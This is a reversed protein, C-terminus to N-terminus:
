FPVSNLEAETPISGEEILQEIPTTSIFFCEVTKRDIKKIIRREEEAISGTCFQIPNLTYNYYECWANLSSKFQNSKYKSSQSVSLTSKFNEFAAERKFYVNFYGANDPAVEPRPDPPIVFYHNAWTFFEEDRSVGKTM